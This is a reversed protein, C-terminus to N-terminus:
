CGPPLTAIEVPASVTSDNADDTAVATLTRFAIDTNPWVFQYPATTDVGLWIGDYFFDVQTVFGDTDSADATITVDGIIVEGETPATISVSPPDNSNDDVQLILRPRLQPDGAFESSRFMKLYGPGNGRLQWGYNNIQGLSMAQVSDTVDIVVWEPEWGTLADPSGVAAFDTGSGEAGLQNWAVGSSAQVWTAESEVWDMLVPHARYTYNYYSSKYVALAAYTITSGVPVPGGENAFIDFRILPNFMNASSNMTTLAGKPFTTHFHDLFTDSTGAYGNLGDQLITLDGTGPPTVDLALEASLTTIETDDTAAATFVHSGEVVEWDLSFPATDDVGLSTGNLFFEIRDITGDTDSADATLTVIRGELFTVSGDLPGTMTVTPPNNVHNAVTATVRPSIYTDGNTDTAIAEFEYFGNTVSQVTTTYPAATDVAITQGDMLFEVQTITAAPNGINASVDIDSNPLIFGQSTPETITIHPDPSGTSPDSWGVPKYLWINGDYDGQVTMFADLQAIYKWKGLIGAGSTNVPVQTTTSTLKQINWGNPSLTAPPTLEWVDGGGGWLLLRNRPADYDMGYDGLGYQYIGNLQAVFNGNPTFRVDLNTPSPTSLDWYAFVDNPAIRVYADLTPIYAASGPGVIFDVGVHEWTDQTPDDLDNVTYKSLQGHNTHVYVVDKGNEQKYGTSGEVFHRPYPASPVNLPVDRNEWMEGGLVGLYLNDWQSHSGTIGGVKYGDARSPDFFFPGTHRYVGPSEELYFVEGAGGFTPGGVTLFRDVIPLYINNDYTHASQPSNNPGDVTLWPLPGLTEVDSPLSMREWELTTARWRYVDNGGYNAHGGGYIILDGRRSDWAFGSFAAIIGRPGWPNSNPLKTSSMLLGTPTFVDEIENTNVRIWGGEPTTRLTSLVPELDPESIAPVVGVPLESDSFASIPFLLLTAAAVSLCSKGFATFRGIMTKDRTFAQNETYYLLNSAAIYTGNAPM